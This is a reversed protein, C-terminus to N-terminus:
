TPTILLIDMDTKTAPGEKCTHIILDHYSRLPAGVILRCSSRSGIELCGVGRSGIMEHSRRSRSETVQKTASPLTPYYSPCVIPNRFTAIFCCEIVCSSLGYLGNFFSAVQIRSHRARMVEYINAM